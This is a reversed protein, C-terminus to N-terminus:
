LGTRMGLMRESEHYLMQANEADKAHDAIFHDALQCDAMYGFVEGGVDLEDLKPDFAAVITTAAGQDLTQWEKEPLTSQIVGFAEADMDRSLGTDVSGPHVSLALINDGNKKLRRSLETAYLVNATKSQGYGIFGPYSDKGLKLWREPLDRPPKQSEPVGDYVYHYIQYDHFRVPSLRHGHSTVNVIRSSGQGAGRSRAAARLKPLLLSTLLFPGLHNVFFQMDVFTDGPTQIADRSFTCLGANNILVDVRDVLYDITAAAARISDLSTLDLPVKHVTVSPHKQEIDAAVADVKSATRSALILASPQQSAVALAMSEGLSNPSIGTIIVVRGKITDKLAEAAETGTTVRGFAANSAM